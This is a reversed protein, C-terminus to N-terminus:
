LLIIFGEQEFHYDHTLVEGIGRARMALISVCARVM